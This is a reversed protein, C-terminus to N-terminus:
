DFDFMGGLFSKKKKGYYPQRHNDERYAEGRNPEPIERVTWPGTVAVASPANTSRSM